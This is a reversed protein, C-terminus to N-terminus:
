YAILCALILNRNRVSVNSVVKSWLMWVLGPAWQVECEIVTKSEKGSPHPYMPQATTSSMVEM